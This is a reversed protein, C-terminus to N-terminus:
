QLAEFWYSKPLNANFLMMQVRKVLTRSMHEAVGNHQPMDPTTIEHQIGKELFEQVNEGIYEGGRDTRLVKLQKGTELEVQSVFAKLHQTVESKECLGTVFVKHSKNNVWTVFYLYGQHSHTPLKGCVDSFVHGLVTDTCTGTEKRINTHTQKGKLCPKCTSSLTTANGIIEMGKVMGKHMMWLIANTNLHSLRWHWTDITAQSASTEVILATESPAEGETPFCDLIAICASDPVITAMQMIYLNGCPDGECITDKHQDLILCGKDIFHIEIGRQTFHSISLLNGHLDPIYLVDQLVVPKSSGNAYMHTSLRSVGTTLISSNNGLIVKIPPVLPSFHHFWLHNSCMNCLAGSNIIWQDSSTMINPTMDSTKGM